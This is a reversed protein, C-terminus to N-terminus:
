RKAYISLLEKAIDAKTKEKLEQNANDLSDLIQMSMGVANIRELMMVYDKAQTLTSKYMLLFTGSLFSVIIGSVASLLGPSIKSPDLYAGYVGLIILAFGIMLVFLCVWFISRVQSLNRNLYHELKDQALEWALRVKEPNAELKKEKEETASKAAERERYEQYGVLAGIFGTFTSTVIVIIISMTTLSIQKSGELSVVTFWTTGTFFLLVWFIIRVPLSRRYVKIFLEFADM